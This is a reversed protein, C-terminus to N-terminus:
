IIFISNNYIFIINCINQNYYLIDYYEIYYQKRVM